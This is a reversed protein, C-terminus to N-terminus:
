ESDEKIDEESDPKSEEKFDDKSEKGAAASGSIQAKLAEIEAQM